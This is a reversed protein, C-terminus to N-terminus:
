NAGILYIQGDTIGACQALKNPTELREDADDRQPDDVIM